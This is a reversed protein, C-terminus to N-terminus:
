DFIFVISKLIYKRLTNNAISSEFWFIFSENKWIYRYAFVSIFSPLNACQLHQFRFTTFAGRARIHNRYGIKEGQRTKNKKRGKKKIQENENNGCALSAYEFCTDVCKFFANCRYVMIRISARYVWGHVCMGGGRAPM